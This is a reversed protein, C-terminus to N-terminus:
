GFLPAGFVIAMALAMSIRGAQALVERSSVDGGRRRGNVSMFAWVTAAATFALFWLWNVSDVWAPQAGDVTMPMASTDMGPMSIETPQRTVSSGPLLHGNMVVYMWAMALMMSAHYTGAAWQAMTKASVVTLAVFWGAALLFFAAPATTPAHAGWPWVMVTMAIAMVLHLGNSVVSVWRRRQAVAAVVYATGSLVFLGTALCRLLLEDVM